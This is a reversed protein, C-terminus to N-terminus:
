LKRGVLSGADAQNNSGINALMNQGAFVSTLKFSYLHQLTRWAM